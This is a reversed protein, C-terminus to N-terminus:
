EGMPKFCLRLLGDHIMLPKYVEPLEGDVEFSKVYYSGSAQYPMGTRRHWEAVEARRVEHVREVADLDLAMFAHAGVANYFYSFWEWAKRNKALLPHDRHVLMLGIQSAALSFGRSFSISVLARDLCPKLLRATESREAPTLTPYLNLNLLPYRSERCFDAMDETFRGNRVSPVCVCALAGPSERQFRTERSPGVHFGGWDGPYIVVPDESANIIHTMLDVDSGAAVATYDRFDWVGGSLRHLAEKVYPVFTDHLWEQGSTYHTSLDAATLDECARRYADAAHRFGQPVLARYHEIDDVPVAERVLEAPVVPEGRRGVVCLGDRRVALEAVPM